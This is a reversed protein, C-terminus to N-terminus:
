DGGWEWGRSLLTKVIASDKTLTGKNNVPDYKAGAPSAQSDAVRICPNQVPNIDVARGFAHVSLCKTGSIMRYNFGSSNNVAMSLDDNWRFKTIPIVSCIPFKEELAVQFAYKIDDVLNCNIVLQGQHVKDDFSYYKVIVLRQKGKIDEPCGLLLVGQLAQELSMHSDIIPEELTGSDALVTEECRVFIMMTMIFLFIKKKNFM